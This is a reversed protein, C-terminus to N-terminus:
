LEPEEVYGRRHLVGPVYLLPTLETRASTLVVPQPRQDAAVREDYPVFPADFWAAPDTHELLAATRGAPQQRWSPITPVRGAYGPGILQVGFADPAYVDEFAQATFGPGHPASDPRSPWDPPLSHSVLAQGASWGRKIYGHAVSDALQGLLETLEALATRWAGNDISPGGAVLSVGGSYRRASVSRFADGALCSVSIAKDDGAADILRDAVPEDPSAPIPGFMDKVIGCVAEGAQRRCWEDAAVLIAAHADPDPQWRYARAGRRVRRGRIRVRCELHHAISPPRGATTPLRVRFTGEIGRRELERALEPLIQEFIESEIVNVLVGDAVRLWGWEGIFSPDMEGSAELRADFADTVQRVCDRVAHAAEGCDGVPEFRLRVVPEEQERVRDWERRVEEAIQVM